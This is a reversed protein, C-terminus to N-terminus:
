IWPWLADPFTRTEHPNIYGLFVSEKGSNHPSDWGNNEESDFELM